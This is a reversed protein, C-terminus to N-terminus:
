GFCVRPPLRVDFGEPTDLMERDLCISYYLGGGSKKPGQYMGMGEGQENSGGM